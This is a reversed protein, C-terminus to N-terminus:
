TRERKIVVVTLDDSQERAGAFERVDTVILNILEESRMNRNGGLLSLLREEGYQEDQENMAETVGDSFVVLTDGPTMPLEAEEFPAEEIFSLVTGGSELRLAEKGDSLLFPREHGANSYRFSHREADLIGYFLTAFKEPDTSEFLLRNARELCEGPSPKLFTQGRITAQLNAMLLAAPLGKGSVDGLCIAVTKGDMAIFDFYDGGVVQAPLSIGAIDYGPIRPPTKPLLGLQIESALRVEERMRVLAREQEHLRANEVVQASQAAIIALLRQDEETFTDSDKKNYVTLVGRLESKVLMPVCLVSRISEEWTVGRFRGDSAPDHIVLPRKNLHMWGLLAQELHFPRREASSVMTRVLTKMTRDAKEDVLTIVGQEAKVARLSRRVITNMVEQSNISAGIALALDNLITLEEVARKLRENEKELNHLRQEIRRDSAM